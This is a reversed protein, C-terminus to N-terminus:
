RYKSDDVTSPDAGPRVVDDYWRGWDPRTGDLDTFGYERMLTWSALTKGAFRAVDPDTALAAVGRGLYRPSESVAFHAAHPSRGGTLADRWNEETVQYVTDLMFESRLYGPTVALGTCGHGALEAGLARGLARVGSKVLYYPMGAGVYDENDGDTVEIVLGGPRRVVLPLLRHLAVLHTEVGNRVMRLAKDLDADWYATDFQVFPDGGWVDDVLIDIRGHASEVRDRLADVDSVETFDCRVPIGLGGAATVLEATDEITEPRNMPSRHDRTTRGTVYVTAGQVGLEVAIGRGCGRTAGTVVAVTGKLQWELDKTM